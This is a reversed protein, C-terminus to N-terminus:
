TKRTIVREGEKRYNNEDRKKLTKTRLKNSTIKNCLKRTHTFGIIYVGQNEQESDELM